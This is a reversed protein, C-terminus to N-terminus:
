RKSQFAKEQWSMAKILRSSEIEPFFNFRLSIWGGFIPIAIIM